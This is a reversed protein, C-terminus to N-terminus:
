CRTEPRQGMPLRDSVAKTDMWWMGGGRCLQAPSLVQGKVAITVPAEPEKLRICVGHLDKLELSQRGFIPDNVDGIEIILRDGERRCSIELFTRLRTWELLRVTSTVWIKGAESWQRLLDFRGITESSLPLSRHHTWHTALICTGHVRCLELLNPETILHSSDIGEKSDRLYLGSVRGPPSGYCRNFRWYRVGDDMRVAQLITERGNQGHEPLAIRNEHLDHM